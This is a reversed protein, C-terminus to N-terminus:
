CIGISYMVFVIEAIISRSRQPIKFSSFDLIHIGVFNFLRAPNSPVLITPVQLRVLHYDQWRSLVSCQPWELRPSVSYLVSRVDISRFRGCFLLCRCTLGTLVSLSECCVRLGSM